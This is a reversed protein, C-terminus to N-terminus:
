VGGVFAVGVTQVDVICLHFGFVTSYWTCVSEDDAGYRISAIFPPLTQLRLLVGRLASACLIPHRAKILGYVRPAYKIYYRLDGAEAAIM